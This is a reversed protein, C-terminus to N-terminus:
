KRWIFTQNQETIKFGLSEYLSIAAKNDKHVRLGAHKGGEQMLTQLAFLMIQRGYGKRRHKPSVGINSIFKNRVSLDLIGIVEGNKDVWYLQQMNYWLDLFKDPMGRINDMVIDLMSDPSGSLCEIVHELFDGLEERKVRECVPEEKPEFAKNLPCVMRYSNAVEEFGLEELKSTLNEHKSPFTTFVLDVNNKMALSYAESIYNELVEAPQKFDIIQIRAVPTGIPALLQVPETGTYLLGIPKEDKVFLWYSMGLAKALGTYDSIAEEFPKLESDEHSIVRM